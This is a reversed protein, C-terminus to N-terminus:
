IRWTMLLWIYCEPYLCTEKLFGQFYTRHGCDNLVRSAEGCGLGPFAQLAAETRQEAWPSAGSVPLGMHASVLCQLYLKQVCYTLAKHRLHQNISRVQTSDAKGSLYIYHDECPHHDHRCIVTPISFGEESGCM